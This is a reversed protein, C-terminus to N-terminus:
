ELNQIQERIKELETKVQLVVATVEIDSVKSGITNVERNLEQLLFDMRRGVPATEKLLGELQLMHSRFRVVEETFDVKDAYIAVEQLLRAKDPVQEHKAFIDGIKKTLRQEYTQLILERRTWIKEILGQLTRVRRQIDAALRAGESERTKVLAQLAAQLAQLLVPEVARIAAMDEKSEVTLWDTSVQLLESLTLPAEDFGEQQAALLGQRYAQVLEKHVCIHPVTGAAEPFDAFVEVRGRAICATIHNRVMDELYMYTRPLRLNLELFRQNVTRIEVTVTGTAGVAEGLGYGTMSRM